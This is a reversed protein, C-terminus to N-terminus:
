MSGPISFRPPQRNGACAWVRRQKGWDAVAVIERLQRESVPDHGAVAAPTGPIEEQIDPALLLLSDM